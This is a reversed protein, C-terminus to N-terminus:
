AMFEKIRIAGVAPAKMLNSIMSLVKIASKANSARCSFM